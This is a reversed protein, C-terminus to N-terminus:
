ATDVAVVRLFDHGHHLTSGRYSSEVWENWLTVFPLRRTTLKVGYHRALEAHAQRSSSLLPSYFILNAPLYPQAYSSFLARPVNTWEAFGPRWWKDNDLVPHCASHLIVSGTPLRRWFQTGDAGNNQM